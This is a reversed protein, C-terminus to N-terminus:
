MQKIKNYLRSIYNGGGAKELKVRQFDKAPFILKDIEPYAAKAPETLAALQSATGTYIMNEILGYKRLTPGMYCFREVPEPEQTAEQEQTDSKTVVDALAAAEPAPKAEQTDSETVVEAVQEAAEVKEVTEATAKKATRKRTPKKAEQAEAEKVEAM